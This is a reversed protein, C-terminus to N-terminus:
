ELLKPPNKGDYLADFRGILDAERRRWSARVAGRMNEPVEFAEMLEESNVVRDVAELAM